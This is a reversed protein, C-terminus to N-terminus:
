KEGKTNDTNANSNLRELLHSGRAGFIYVPEHGVSLVQGDIRNGYIDRAMAGDPVRIEAGGQAEFRLWVLAVEGGHRDSFVFGNMKPSVDPKRLPAGGELYRAFAASALFMGSPVFETYTLLKRAQNRHGAGRGVFADGTLPTSLPCGGFLDIAYRRILNGPPRISALYLDDPPKRAGPAQPNKRYLAFAEKDNKTFSDLFYNETMCLPVGPRYRNCIQHLERLAREGDSGVADLPQSYPHFSAADLWKFAGLDGSRVYYKAANLGMDGTSCIGIVRTPSDGAADKVAKYALEAYHVYAAASEVTGNPENVIEWNLIRGRYRSVAAHIWNTWDADSPHYFIRDGTRGFRAKGKFGGPRSHVRVCWNTEPGEGGPKTCFVGHSGLVVLPEIGYKAMGSVAVDMWSWDFKGEEKEIDDWSFRGDHMRSLGCGGRRLDRFYDDVTYGLPGRWVKDNTGFRACTPVYPNAKFVGFAGNVGVRFGDGSYPPVKAAVGYDVPFVTGSTAESEFTGSLTFLGNRSLPIAVRKEGVRGSALSLGFRGAETVFSVEHSSEYSIARLAASATVTEEDDRDYLCEKMTWIAEIPAAPHYEGAKGGSVVEFQLADVWLACAYPINVRVTCGTIRKSGFRIPKLVVRTWNTGIEFVENENAYAPGSEYNQTRWVGFAIRTPRDAKFCGAVAYDDGGTPEFEVDATMLQVEGGTRTNDIRLSRTGHM